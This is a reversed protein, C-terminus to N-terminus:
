RKLINKIINNCMGKEIKNMGLFYFTFSSIITSVILVIVLRMFGYPLLQCIICPVILAMISFTSLPIIVEQVYELTSFGVVKSAVIVCIIQMIVTCIFYLIFGYEPSAGM